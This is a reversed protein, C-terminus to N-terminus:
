FSAFLSASPWHSVGLECGMHFARCLCAFLFSPCEAQGNTLSRTSQGPEGPRPGMPPPPSGGPRPGVWLARGEGPLECHQALGSHGEQVTRQAGAAWLLM